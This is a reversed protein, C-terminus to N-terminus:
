LIISALVKKKTKSAISNEESLNLSTLIINFQSMTVQGLSIMKIRFNWGQYFIALRTKKKESPDDLEDYMINRELEDAALAELMNNRELEDAAVEGVINDQIELMSLRLFLVPDEALSSFQYCIAKWATASLYVHRYNVLPIAILGYLIPQM